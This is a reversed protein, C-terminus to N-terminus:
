LSPAKIKWPIVTLNPVWFRAKCGQKDGPVKHTHEYTGPRFLGELEKHCGPCVLYRPKM